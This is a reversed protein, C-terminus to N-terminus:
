QVRCLDSSKPHSVRKYIRLTKDAIRENTYNTAARELGRERLELRFAESDSCLRMCQFLKVTAGEPFVLGANGIVNPIEGSDSGIVPVGSAMAEILVHGFQEKWFPKSRSPLVLVDLINMTDAVEHYKRAPLVVLKIGLQRCRDRVTAEMNGKGNLLLVPVRNSAAMLQGTAEVLDLLGKEEVFRGVFGVVFENPSIGLGSRLSERREAAYPYFIDPDIGIQPLVEIKDEPVGREILIQKGDANGCIFFDVFQRNFRSLCELAKAKKGQQEARLNEWSFLILKAQPAFRKRYLLAQCVIWSHQENEVHIIDPRFQSFGLDRSWLFWRTSTRYHHLFRIPYSEVPVGINCECDLSHSGFPTPYSSPTILRLETLQALHALKGRNASEVYSHSILAVKVPM